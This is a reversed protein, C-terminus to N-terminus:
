GAVAARSYADGASLVADAHGLLGGAGADGSRAAEEAVERLEGAADALIQGAKALREREDIEM